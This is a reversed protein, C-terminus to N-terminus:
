KRKMTTSESRWVTIGKERSPEHRHDHRASERRDVECSHLASASFGAVIGHGRSRLWAAKARIVATPETNRALYVDHHIAVCRTRLAHRTLAGAALAASGIFPEGLNM